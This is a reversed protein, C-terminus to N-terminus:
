KVTAFYLVDPRSCLNYLTTNRGSEYVFSQKLKTICVMWSSQIDDKTRMCRNVISSLTSLSNKRGHGVFM